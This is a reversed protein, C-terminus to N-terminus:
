PHVKVVNIHGQKFERKTQCDYNLSAFRWPFKKTPGGGGKFCIESM